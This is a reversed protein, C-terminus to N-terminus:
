LSSEVRGLTSGDVATAGGATSATGLSARGVGGATGVSARGVGECRFDPPTVHSQAM